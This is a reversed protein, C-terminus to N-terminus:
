RDGDGAQNGGCRQLEADSMVPLRPEGLRLAVRIYPICLGCGTGCGTEDRLEDLTAGKKQQLRILEAFTVDHCVCHDVPRDNV